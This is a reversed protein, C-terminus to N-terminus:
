LAGEFQPYGVIALAEEPLQKYFGRQILETISAQLLEMETGYADEFQFKQGHVAFGPFRLGPQDATGHQHHGACLPLVYIHALPKTRGDIHHISVYGNSEGFTKRCPLCGVHEALLTHFRKEAASPTRGKM